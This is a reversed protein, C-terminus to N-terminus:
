KAKPILNLWGLVKAVIADDKPSPTLKCIMAAVGLTAVVIGSVAQWNTTIWSM